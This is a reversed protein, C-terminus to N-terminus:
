SLEAPARGLERLDIRQERWRERLSASGHVRAWALENATAPLVQLIAIEAGETAVVPVTSEAVVVGTCRSGPALPEALDVTAGARHVLGEVAPAAALVALRRWVDRHRPGADRVQLLLEARPGDAAVVAEDAGTMPTRSMGLTVYAYEGPVAEFRLVDLPQVGVFSVSARQPRHGFHDILAAEVLATPDPATVADM